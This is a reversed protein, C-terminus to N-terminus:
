EDILDGLIRLALLHLSLAAVGWWLAASLLVSFPFDSWPEMGYLAGVVPTSVGVTILGVGVLNILSASLETRKNYVIPTM